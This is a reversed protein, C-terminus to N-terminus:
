HIEAYSNGFDVDVDLDRNLKYKTNVQAIADKLLKTAADRHGVKVELIVEDHFQGNIQPRKELIIEVWKDFLFSGTGQNLTSFRDKEAKLFYWMSAVPNWLWKMGRSDKVICEDAIAKLSWNRSWYAAHLKDGVSESVNAARAITAGGAGYTAAYNTTKGAYRALGIRTYLKAQEDKPLRKMEELTLPM